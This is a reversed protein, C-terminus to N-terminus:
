TNHKTRVLSSISKRQLTNDSYMDAVTDVERRDVVVGISWAAKGM